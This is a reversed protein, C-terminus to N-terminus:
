RRLRVPVDATDAPPPAPPPPAAATEFASHGGGSLGSLNRIGGIFLVYASGPQLARDLRFVLERAPLAPPVAAEPAAEVPRRVSDAAATDRPQMSRLRAYEPEVWGSVGRAYDTSDPMAFIVVEALAVAEPAVYDDLVVRVHLSDLAGARVVTPPTSDSALVHFIHAITDAPTGLSVVAGSDVPEASDRRRNRNADAWARLEYVGLPLHRLAFFGATDAVTTYRVGDARRIADVVPSVAARGTVRDIVIGAIATNPVPPGTSFVLEVPETRVNGFLDRVGPLLLVRYVRDARWGGDMRIRVENGSRSIRVPADLPSVVVLAETFNRESLREDFRLVVADDSAAVVALAAPTTSVLAPASVDREGGPPPFARACALAVAVVALLWLRQGRV